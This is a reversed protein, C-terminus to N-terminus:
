RATLGVVAPNAYTRKSAGSRRTSYPSVVVSGSSAAHIFRRSASMVAYEGSIMTVSSGTRRRPLRVSRSRPMTSVTASSRPMQITRTSRSATRFSKGSAVLLCSRATASTSHKGSSRGRSGRLRLAHILSSTRMRIKSARAESRAARGSSM